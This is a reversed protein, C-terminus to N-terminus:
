QGPLPLHRADGLDVGAGAVVARGREAAALAQRLVRGADGGVAGDVLEVRLEALGERSSDLRGEGPNELAHLVLQKVEAGIQRYEFGVLRAARHRADLLAVDGRELAVDVAQLFVQRR